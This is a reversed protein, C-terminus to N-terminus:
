WLPSERWQLQAQRRGPVPPACFSLFGCLVTCCSMLMDCVSSMRECLLIRVATCSGTAPGVYACSMCGHSLPSAAAHALVASFRVCNVPQWCSLGHRLARLPLVGVTRLHCLRHLGPSSPTLVCLLSRPWCIVISLRHTTGCLGRSM